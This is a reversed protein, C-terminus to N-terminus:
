RLRFQMIWRMRVPVTRGARKAPSFRYDRVARLAAEDLGYGAHRLARASTVRGSRDVIIEVPLDLEIAAARAAAPYVLPGPTVLRAPENVEGESFVTTADTQGSGPQGAAGPQSPLDLVPSGVSTARTAVTGGSMAFRPPPAPPAAASAVMTPPAALSVTPAARMPSRRRPAPHAHVPETRAPLSPAPPDAAMATAPSLELEVPQAPSEVGRTGLALVGGVTVAAAAHVAASVLVAGGGRPLWRRVGRRRSPGPVAAPPSGNMIGM